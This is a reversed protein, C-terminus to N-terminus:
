VGKGKGQNNVDHLGQEDILALGSGTVLWRAALGVVDLESEARQSLRIACEWAILCRWGAEVQTALTQRDRRQNEKIKQQWFESNTAPAKCYHCGHGHWFCGRVEILANYKPFVLDPKGPIGKVHLRYRFGLAHLGKRLFLEPRTDKARIGAMMRSRTTADVVDAM